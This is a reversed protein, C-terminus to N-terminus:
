ILLLKRKYHLRKGKIDEGKRVGEIGEERKREREEEEKRKRM